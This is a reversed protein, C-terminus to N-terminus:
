QDLPPSAPMAISEHAVSKVVNGADVAVSLALQGNKGVSPPVSNITRAQRSPRVLCSRLGALARSRAIHTDLGNETGQRKM